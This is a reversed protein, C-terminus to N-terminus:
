IALQPKVVVSGDFRPRVIRGGAHPVDQIDVVDGSAVQGSYSAATRRMKSFASYGCVSISKKLLQHAVGDLEAAVDRQDDQHDAAPAVAFGAEYPNQDLEDAGVEDVRAANILKVLRAESDAVQEALEQEDVVVNAGAGLEGVPRQLLDALRLQQRALVLELRGEAEHVPGEGNQQAVIQGRQRIQAVPHHTANVHKGNSRVKSSPSISLSRKSLIM